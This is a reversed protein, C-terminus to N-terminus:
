EPGGDYYHSAGLKRVVKWAARARWRPLGLYLLGIRFHRDLARRQTANREERSRPELSRLAAGRTDWPVLYGLHYGLDHWWALPSVDVLRFPWLAAIFDQHVHREARIADDRWEPEYIVWRDFWGTVGNGGDFTRPWDAEPPVEPVRAWTARVRPREDDVDVLTWWPEPVPALLDYLDAVRNARPDIM